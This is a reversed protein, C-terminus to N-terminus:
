EPPALWGLRLNGRRAGRDPFKVFPTLISVMQAHASGNFFDKLLHSLLRFVDRVGVEVLHALFEERRWDPDLWAINLVGHCPSGRM